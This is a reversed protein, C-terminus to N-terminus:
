STLLSPASQQNNSPVTFVRAFMAIKLVDTPGSGKWLALQLLLTSSPHSITYSVTGLTVQGSRPSRSGTFFGLHELCKRGLFAPTAHFCSVPVVNANCLVVYM